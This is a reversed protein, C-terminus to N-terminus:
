PTRARGATWRRRPGTPPRSARRRGGAPGTSRSRPGTRSRPRASRGPRRAAAGGRRRFVRLLGPVRPRGRERADSAAAAWTTTVPIAQVCTREPEAREVTTLCRGGRRGSVEGLAPISVVERSSWSRAGRPSGGEEAGEVGQPLHPRACGAQACPWQSPLRPPTGARPSRVSNLRLNGFSGCRRGLGIGSQTGSSSSM